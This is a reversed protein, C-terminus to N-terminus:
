NRESCYADIIAREILSVGFNWLLPPTQGGMKREQAKHISLWLDFVTGSEGAEVALECASRIVGMMEKLDATFTTKPDKTFWKPPLGDAAIGWQRRGDIEVEVRVFLHPLATLTAIGYKFPMRTRMNVARLDTQVVRLM